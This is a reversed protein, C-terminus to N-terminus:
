GHYFKWSAKHNPQLDLDLLLARLLEIPIPGQKLVWDHFDKENMRGAHVVEKRLAYFQLAGLMYGAQYLPPWDGNFSRRVEGEATAREHGVKEVLYDICEQPTMEGLHFNLSFIIRACRHMRWFLMGIKDEPTVAFGRDWLIFEWYFAWGETWFANMSLQRYSRHRAMMHFQLHHGPILEHFVTSRSFPRSNGRMSMLKDEHSMTDTPYSVIISEGGLFFPAVKQREPSMMFTRWCQEAVPPITVMDHKKVYAIAEEALEHVLHTQQGPEVYMNKVHELAAKWDDGFGLDKAATRMERECWNYEKEGIEILEEPSYAISAADLESLLAERGVPQGVIADDVVPDIGVLESRVVAILSTLDRRLAEYPATVWWTFTPDYGKYFGYWEEIQGHLKALERAAQYAAFRGQKDDSGNERISKAKRQMAKAADALVGAAYQGSTPTVKQRRELLAVISDTFPQLTPKMLVCRREYDQLSYLQQHLYKHILVYDVRDQQDLSGFPLGELEALAKKMYAELTNIRTKSTNCSWFTAIDLIDERVAIIKQSVPEHEPHRPQKDRIPLPPPSGASGVPPTINNRVM